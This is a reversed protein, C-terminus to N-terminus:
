GFCNHKSLGCRVCMGHSLCRLLFAVRDSWGVTAGGCQRASRIPFRVFHPCVRRVPACWIHWALPWARAPRTVRVSPRVRSCRANLCVPLSFLPSGLWALGELFPPPLLSV